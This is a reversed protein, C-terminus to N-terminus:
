KHKLKELVFDKTVEKVLSKHVYLNDCTKYWINGSYVYPIVNNKYIRRVIKYKNGAGQRMNVLNSTALLFKDSNACQEQINNEITNSAMTTSEESNEYHITANFTTYSKRPKYWKVPYKREKRKKTIKKKEISQIKNDTKIMWLLKGRNYDDTISLLDKSNIDLIIEDAKIDKMETIKKKKVTRTIKMKKIVQDSEKGDRLFGLIKIHKAIYQVKHPNLPKNEKGVQYASIINIYDGKKLSYNPNQFMRFQMNYSNFEFKDVLDKENTIKISIKEKRFLDNKYINEKAYKDIIEKNLLPTVLIYNKAMKVKKLHEKTIKTNKKINEKAVYVYILKNSKILSKTNQDYFYYAMGLSSFLLSILGLIIVIQKNLKM